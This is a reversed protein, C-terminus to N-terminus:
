LRDDLNGDGFFRRDIKAWYIMDFAWSRRVAYNVWFDGSEWSDRMYTSLRHEKALLGREIVVKEREELVKLFMELHTEYLDTWDDLGEPWYEPLELLLWFPASYAFELPAAYTYEWYQGLM